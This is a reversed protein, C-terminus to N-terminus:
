DLEDVNTTKTKTKTTPPKATAMVPAPPPMVVHASSPATSNLLFTGCTSLRTAPALWEMDPDASPNSQHSTLPDQPRPHCTALTPAPPPMAPSAHDEIRFASEVLATMGASADTGVSACQQLLALRSSNVPISSASTDFTEGAGSTETQNDKMGKAAKIWADPANVVQEWRQKRQRQLFECDKVPVIKEGSFPNVEHQEPEQPMADPQNSAAKAAAEAEEARKRKGEAMLQEFHLFNMRDRDRKEQRIAEIEVREAEQAAKYDGGSADLAKGWADVRRREDEFVPRDDLYRLKRCRYVLTKRYQKIHKVVDNGQLYLVKLNPMKALVDLVAPDVIRNSQVDLVSLNPLQVLHELDQATAL